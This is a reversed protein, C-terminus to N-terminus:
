RPGPSVLWHPACVWQPPLPVFVCYSTSVHHFTVFYFLFYLSFYSLPLLLGYLVGQLWVSVRVYLIVSAQKDSRGGTKRGWSQVSRWVREVLTPSGDSGSTTPLWLVCMVDSREEGDAKVATKSQLRELSKTNANCRPYRLCCIDVLSLFAWGDSSM